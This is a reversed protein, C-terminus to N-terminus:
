IFAVLIEAVLIVAVEKDIVAGTFKVLKVTVVRLTVPGAPNVPVDVKLPRRIAVLLLVKLLRLAVLATIVDKNDLTMFVPPSETVPVRLPVLASNVLAILAVLATKPGRLVPARLPVLADNLPAILAVLATRVPARLPVLADNLSAILAVLATIGIILAVLIEELLIVTVDKVTVAGTVNELKFTVVSLTLPGADKLPVDVNLPARTAVLLLVKLLRLAVLATIPGRLVPAKLPVLAVKLSAILAVLATKPGRLVPARLPVLAEKLPAILAVLATTPGRLVPARLPVLAEKLPAILAVLATNGIRLAVVIKDLLLPSM